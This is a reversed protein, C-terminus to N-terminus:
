SQNQPVKILKLKWHADARHKLFSASVREQRLLEWEVYRLMFSKHSESLTDREDSEITQM